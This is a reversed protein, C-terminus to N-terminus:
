RPQAQVTRVTIAGGPAFTVTSSQGLAIDHIGTVAGTTILTGAPLAIGRSRCHALLFAVAQVPTGPISAFNGTGVVAGDIRTEVTLSQPAADQWGTLAPGVILGANNGFDSVVVTPGLKNITALPSGALEIGAHISGILGRAEAEDSPGEAPMDAGLKVVFEGEVAAFGGPIIPLDIIQGESYEWVNGDFVPGALRVAGLPERLAPPVMGIKWGRVPTPWLSRAVDQIEYSTTLKDPITGPYDPLSTGARRAAVFRQAIEQATSM